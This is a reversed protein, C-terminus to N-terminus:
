LVRAGGTSTVAFDRPRPKKHGRRLSRWVHRSVRAPWEHRALTSNHMEGGCWLPSCPLFCWFFAPPFFLLGCTQFTGPSGHGLVAGCSFALLVNLLARNHRSQLRM